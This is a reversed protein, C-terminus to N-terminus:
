TSIVEGGETATGSRRCPSDGRSLKAGSPPKTSFYITPAHFGYDILRKAVDEESIGSQQQLPRLDLICEHAVLGTKGKYLVPYHDELRKAMYNANLIAVQTAATLGSAGMLAIYVWYNIKSIVIPLLESM